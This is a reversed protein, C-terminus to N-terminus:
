ETLSNLYNKLENRLICTESICDVNDLGFWPSHVYELCITGTYQSEKLDTIVRQFDISGDVTHCQLHGSKAQRAHLHSTYPYLVASQEYPLGYFVFHSHDLTLTLGPVLKVIKLALEPHWVVSGVHPEIRIKLKHKKGLNVAWSLEEVARSFSVDPLEKERYVGSELTVGELGIGEAFDFFGALISHYRERYQPSRHNGELPEESKIVGPWLGSLADIFMMSTENAIQLFRSIEQDVHDAIFVPDFDPSYTGLDMRSFGLAQIIKAAELVTCQQFSVYHCGLEISM